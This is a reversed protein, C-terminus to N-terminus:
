RSKRNPRRKIALLRMFDDFLSEDTPEFMIWKGDHQGSPLERLNGSVKLADLEEAYKEYIARM